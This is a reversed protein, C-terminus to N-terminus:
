SAIENLIRKAELAAFVVRSFEERFPSEMERLLAQAIDEEGQELEMYSGCLVLEYIKHVPDLMEAIRYYYPGLWVTKNKQVSPIFVIMTGGGEYLKKKFGEGVVAVRGRGV